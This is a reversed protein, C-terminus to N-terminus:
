WEGTKVGSRCGTKPRIPEHPSTRGDGQTGSVCRGNTPRQRAPTRPLGPARRIARCRREGRPAAANSSRRLSTSTRSMLPRLPPRSAARRRRRGAPAPVSGPPAPAVDVIVAASPAVPTEPPAVSSADGSSGVHDVPESRQTTRALAAAHPAASTGPTPVGAHPPGLASRYGAWLTGSVVVVFGAAFLASGRWASRRCAPPSSGALDGLISVHHGCTNRGDISLLSPVSGRTSFREKNM